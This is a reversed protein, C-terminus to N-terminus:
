GRSFVSSSASAPRAVSITGFRSLMWFFPDHARQPRVEAVTSPDVPPSGLASVGFYRFHAYHHRMLQDIRPGDWDELLAQVQDHVALSDGQDFEALPRPPRTLPSGPAFTHELADLKSFVVAMPTDIKETPDDLKERLLETVRTLVDFPRDFGGRGPDPLVTGPLAEARAGPMQLPDLLLIIGDASSLYRVNLEVNESTTLDEGATDFFSLITHRERVQRFRKRQLTLRFVLPRRRTRAAVPPTAPPLSHEHYLRHDYDRDLSRRTEDDSGVVAADLIRGVRHMLEHILVTMFVTKGSQKAGIMAILRADVKGFHVPLRSHCHPCLRHTTETRCTPCGARLRRGDARFAPPLPAAYSLWSILHQDPESPCGPGGRSPQGTCRFWIEKEAFRNYCYPCALV